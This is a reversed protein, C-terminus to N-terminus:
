KSAKKAAEKRIGITLRSKIRSVTNKKLVGNQAAKDVSKVVSKALAEAKKIDGAELAKRAQRRLYTVNEKVRKNRAERTQTQRLAKMASKKNPM